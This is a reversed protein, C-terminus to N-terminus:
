NKSTPLVPMEPGSIKLLESLAARIATRDDWPYEIEGFCMSQEHGKGCAIVLDGPEALRVAERIAAGRDPIIHFDKGEVAGNKRAEDAMEVLIDDLRETRPDEATMISIDALQASVAAMMRRKYRDRLGASGFVAIVRGLTSKRSTELAVKLANPTHAFDVIASFNQGLDIREMRGPVHDMASVGEIVKELPLKLGVATVAIAALINHINYEGILTSNVRGNGSPIRVDFHLGNIDMDINDAMVPTGKSLGFTILELQNFKPHDIRELIKEYSIDEANVVAIRSNGQKKERTAMLYEILRFKASFYDKYSGHYDLHEHTINTIVGLDFECAEARYQDLGHSTTELVVHSLGADVMKKLLSQIVTSEPTTVHFGTDITEEGIVANVTSIMGARVGCTLMIRYILNVTTTKGDTGTVGIVKLSRAPFGYFVAALHAMARRPNDNRFYPVGEINIPKRGIVASAGAKIANQIFNHGDTSGGELALFLDGPKVKRSDFCIGTVEIAPIEKELEPFQNSEILLDPLNM